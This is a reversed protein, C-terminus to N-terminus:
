GIIKIHPLFCDMVPSLYKAVGREVYGLQEANVFVAIANKDYPNSPHRIFKARALSEVLKKRPYFAVGTVLCEHSLLEKWSEAENRAEMPRVEGHFGCTTNSTSELRSPTSSLFANNEDRISMLKAISDSDDAKSAIRRHVGNSSEISRM